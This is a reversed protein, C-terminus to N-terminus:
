KHLHQKQPKLMFSVPEQKGNPNTVSMELDGRGASFTEVTFRAPAGVSNGTLEIGTSLLVDVQTIVHMFTCGDLFQTIVHLFQCWNNHDCTYFADVQTIVHILPCGSIHDGTYSFILQHSLMYLQVDLPTILHIIPCGNTHDCTYNSILHHSWMYLLIDVQLSWM